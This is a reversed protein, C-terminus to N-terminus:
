RRSKFYGVAKWTLPLVIAAAVAKIADGILFPTVGLALAKAFDAGTFAMLWPVGGAYVLATSLTSLGITKILSRDAQRRAFYGAAVASPLYGLIYGFSAFAWGSGQGAFLPAGAVGLGLYLLVSAAARVPGLAVGSFLVAFTALSLPVPTFWLPIAVQGAFTLLATGSFVLALDRIKSGPILDALVPRATAQTMTM